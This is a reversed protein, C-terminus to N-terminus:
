QELLQLMTDLDKYEQMGTTLQVGGGHGQGGTVNSLVYSRGRQNVLTEFQSFNITLHNANSTRVFIHLSGAASGGSVHCLICRSQVVNASVKSAFLEQAQDRASQETVTIKHPVPTYRLQGDAPMYGLFLKHEGSAGLTGNYFDVEMSAGLTANDRFPVLDRIAGTNWSVYNGDQNRMTFAGNVRDVLFIDATQGVLATEPRITGTIRVTDSLRATTDFTSGNDRTLGIAFTANTDAGLATRDFIAGRVETPAITQAQSSLSLCVCAAFALLHFPAM